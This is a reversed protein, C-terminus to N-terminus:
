FPLDAEEAPPPPPASGSHEPPPDLFNLDRVVCETRYHKTGDKDDWNRTQWRGCVYLRSGKSCYQATVEAMRGWIVLPVWEVKSKRDDGTGWEENVALSVNVVTSTGAQKLEPDAGLNGIFTCTNVGRAM